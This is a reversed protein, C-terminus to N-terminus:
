RFAAEFATPPDPSTPLTAVDVPFSAHGQGASNHATIRARYTCGARLDRLTCAASDGQSLFMLTHSLVTYLMVSISHCGDTRAWYTCGAGSRAAHVGRQRGTDHPFTCQFYVIDPACVRDGSAPLTAMRPMHACAGGVIHMQSHKSILSHLLRSHSCTTFRTEAM